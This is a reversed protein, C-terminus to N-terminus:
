VAITMHVLMQTHKEVIEICTCKQIDSKVHTYASVHVQKTYVNTYISMYMNNHTYVYM